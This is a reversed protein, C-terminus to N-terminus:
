HVTCSAGTRRGTRFRLIASGAVNGKVAIGTEIVRRWSVTLFPLFNVVGTGSGLATILTHFSIEKQFVALM